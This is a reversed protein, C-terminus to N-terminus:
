LVWYIEILFWDTAGRPDTIYYDPTTASILLPLIIGKKVNQYAVADPDPYRDINVNFRIDAPFEFKINKVGRGQTALNFDGSSRSSEGPWPRPASAVRGILLQGQRIQGMEQKQDPLHYKCFYKYKYGYM